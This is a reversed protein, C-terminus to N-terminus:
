NKVSGASTLKDFTKYALLALSRKYGDYKPNKAMNFAKGRLIKDPVTRRTLNEFIGYSLDHQFCPLKNQYIYRSYGKEKFM